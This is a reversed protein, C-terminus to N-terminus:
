TFDTLAHDVVLQLFVEGPMQFQQKLLTEEPIHDNDYKYPRLRYFDKFLM